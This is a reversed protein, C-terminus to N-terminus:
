PRKRLIDHNCNNLFRITGDELYEFTVRNKRDVRAEWIGDLGKMKKVRLGPSTDGDILRAVCEYIAGSLKPEKGSATKKFSKPIEADPM